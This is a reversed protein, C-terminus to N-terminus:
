DSEYLCVGVSARLTDGQIGTMSSQEKQTLYSQLDPVQLEACCYTMLRALSFGCRKILLQYQLIHAWGLACRHATRDVNDATSVAYGVLSDVSDSPELVRVLKNAVILAVQLAGRKKTCKKAFAAIEHVATTVNYLIGDLVTHGDTCLQEHAIIKCTKPSVRELIVCVIASSEITVVLWQEAHASFM